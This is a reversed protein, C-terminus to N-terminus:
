KDEFEVVVVPQSV